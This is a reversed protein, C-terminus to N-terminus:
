GAGRWRTRSMIRLRRRGTGRDVWVERFHLDRAATLDLHPSARIHVLLGIEGICWRGRHM